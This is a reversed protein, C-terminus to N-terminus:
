VGHHIAFDQQHEARVKRVPIKIGLVRGDNLDVNTALVESASALQVKAEDSVRLGSETGQQWLQLLVLILLVQFIRQFMVPLCAFAQVVQCSSVGVFRWNM